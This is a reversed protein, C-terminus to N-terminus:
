DNDREVLGFQEYDSFNEANEVSTAIDLEDWTMVRVPEGLSKTLFEEIVTVKLSKAKEWDNENM